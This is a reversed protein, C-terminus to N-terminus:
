RGKRKQRLLRSLEGLRGRAIDIDTRATRPSRKEFAHRVYVAEVFRAVYFVRHEIGSHIRIEVVGPGVGKVPKWDSPMLGNQVRRLQFGALRRAEKPFSRLDKM